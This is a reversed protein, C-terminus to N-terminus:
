GAKDFAVVALPTYVAGDPRLDSKFLTVHDVSIQGISGVASRNILDGIEALERRNARDSVRGLTLHPSFPRKEEQFGLAALAGTVRKHLAALVGSPEVVGVWVVRPRNLNPFVGLGYLQFHFTGQNTCAGRLADGIAEIRDTAVDGLFQLTLHISQPRAWRVAKPPAQAKLDAQIAALAATTDDPLEIAVFSRIGAM